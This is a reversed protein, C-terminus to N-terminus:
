RVSVELSSSSGSVALRVALVSGAVLKNTLILETLQEAVHSECLLKLANM